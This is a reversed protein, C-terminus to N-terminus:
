FYISTAKQYLTVSLDNSTFLDIEVMLKSTAFMYWVCTIKLTKRDHSHAECILSKILNATNKAIPRYKFQINCLSFNLYLSDCLCLRESYFLYLLQRRVTRLVDNRAFLLFALSVSHNEESRLFSLSSYCLCIIKLLSELGCSTIDDLHLPRLSRFKM